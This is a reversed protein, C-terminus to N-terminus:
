QCQCAKKAFEPTETKPPEWQLADSRNTFTAVRTFTDMDVWYHWGSDLDSLLHYNRHVNVWEMVEHGTIEESM